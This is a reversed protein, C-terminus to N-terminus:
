HDEYLHGVGKISWAPFFGQIGGKKTNLGYVPSQKEQVHRREGERRRPKEEQSGQRGTGRKKLRLDNRAGEGATQEGRGGGASGAKSVEFKQGGRRATKGV